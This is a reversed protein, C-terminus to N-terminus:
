KQQYSINILLDDWDKPLCWPFRNNFPLVEFKREKRESRKWLEKPEIMGIYEKEIFGEDAQSITSMVIPFPYLAFAWTKMTKIDRNSLGTMGDPHVHALKYVIGPSLKHLSWILEEPFDVHGPFGEILALLKDQPSIIAGSEKIFIM